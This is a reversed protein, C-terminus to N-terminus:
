DDEKPHGYMYHKRNKVLDTPLDDWTDPPLEAQRERVKRLIRLLPGEEKGHPVSKYLDAVRELLPAAEADPMEALSLIVEEGEELDLPEM